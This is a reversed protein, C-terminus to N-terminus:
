QLKMNGTGTDSDSACSLIYIKQTKALSLLCQSDKLQLSFRFRWECSDKQNNDILCLSKTTEFLKFEGIIVVLAYVVKSTISDNSDQCSNGEKENKSILKECHRSLIAKHESKWAMFFMIQIRNIDQWSHTPRTRLRLGAIGVEKKVKRVDMLKRVKTKRKGELQLMSISLFSSKASDKLSFLFSIRLRLNGLCARVNRHVRSAALLTRWVIAGAPFPMENILAIAKDLMGARSYLDEIDGKQAYGSLMASWAVIDKMLRLIEQLRVPIEKLSTIFGNAIIFWNTVREKLYKMGPKGMGEFGATAELWGHVQIGKEAACKDALVGLVTTFTFANPKVGCVLMIHFVQLARDVLKNCSYSRFLLSTWTVVNKDEMEHFMKQGEDVNETKMYMGDYLGLVLM